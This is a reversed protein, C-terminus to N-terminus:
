VCMCYASPPGHTNDCQCSNVSCKSHAFMASWTATPGPYDITVCVYFGRYYLESKLEKVSCGHKELVQCTGQVVEAPKTLLILALHGEWEWRWKRAM